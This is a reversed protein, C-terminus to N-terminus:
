ALGENNLGQLHRANPDEKFWPRLPEGSYVQVNFIQAFPYSLGDFVFRIDDGREEAATMEDLMAQRISPRQDGYCDIDDAGELSGISNFDPHSIVRHIAAERFKKPMDGVYLGDRKKHLIDYLAPREKIKDTPVFPHPVYPRRHMADFRADPVPNIGSCDLFGNVIHFQARLHPQECVILRHFHQNHAPHGLNNAGGKVVEVRAFDHLLAGFEEPSANEFYQKLSANAYGRPVARYCYDKASRHDSSLDDYYLDFSTAKHHDAPIKNRFNM